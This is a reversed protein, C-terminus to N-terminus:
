TREKLLEMQNPLYPPTVEHIIGENECYYNLLIYESGEIMDLLKSKRYLQNEIETKYNLFM